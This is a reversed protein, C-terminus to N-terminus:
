AWVNTFPQGDARTGTVTVTTVGGAAGVTLPVDIHLPCVAVKATVAGLPAVKPQNVAAVPPVAIKVPFENVVGASFLLM